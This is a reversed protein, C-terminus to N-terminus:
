LKLFALSCTGDDIQTDSWRSFNSTKFANDDNDNAKYDENINDEVDANTSPRPVASQNSEENNHVNVKRHVQNKENDSDKFNLNIQEPNLIEGNKYKAHSPSNEKNDLSM